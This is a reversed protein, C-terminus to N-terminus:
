SPNSSVLNGRTPSLCKIKILHRHTKNLTKRGVRARHSSRGLSSPNSLRGLTQHSRFHCRRFRHSIRAGLGRCRNGMLTNNIRLVALSMLAKSDVLHSTELARNGLLVKSPALARNGLLVKSPALARNGALAKSGVLARSTGLSSIGSIKGLAKRFVRSTGLTRSTGLIRSITLFLSDPM